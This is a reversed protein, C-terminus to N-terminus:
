NSLATIPLSAVRNSHRTHELEHMSRLSEGIREAHILWAEALEANLQSRVTQRFLDLWENLLEPTFGAAAHREPVNYRHDLYRKGGLTVWWFHSLHSLHEPWNTVRTFPWSLTPHKRVASYFAEVVNKIHEHGIAKALEKM